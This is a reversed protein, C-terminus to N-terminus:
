VRDVRTTVFIQTIQRKRNWKWKQTRVLSDSTKLYKIQKWNKGKEM